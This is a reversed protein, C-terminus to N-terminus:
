NLECVNVSYLAIIVCMESTEMYGLVIFPFDKVDSPKATVLYSDLVTIRYFLCTQFCVWM